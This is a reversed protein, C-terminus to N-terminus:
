KMVARSVDELAIGRSAKFLVTDGAQLTRKLDEALSQKDQFLRAGGSTGEMYQAGFDGLLYLIDCNKEAFAGIEMHAKLSYDGLELMGGLVAIRRGPREKLVSLSARMSDPSANYCDEIYTIGDKVTMKQRMGSPMYASFGALIEDDTMQLEKAALFAALADLVMHRGLAPVFAEIDRHHYRITFATGEGDTHIDKAIIDADGCDIGYRRLRVGEPPQVTRLLDDDGNVILLGGRGIGECLELKAKLINERSGLTEIHSVGIITIIGITPKATRSLLSIEGFGSMGMEIVAAETTSDMQLLTAPLGVENNLNAPTKHTSFRRSLVSWVLEKTTTKGVSGTIGVLPINFLERYYAAIALYARGTDEVRILKEQAGPGAYSRDVVAAVAGKELCQGVFDHGDFREGKLAVFLSGPTITRSDTSVAKVLTQKDKLPYGLAGAIDQLLVAEM